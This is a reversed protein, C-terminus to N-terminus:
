IPLQHDNSLYNTIMLYLTLPQNPYMNKQHSISFIGKVFDSQSIAWTNGEFKKMM